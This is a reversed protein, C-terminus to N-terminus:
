YVKSMFAKTTESESGADAAFDEFDGQKKVKTQNKLQALQFQHFSKNAKKNPYILVNDALWGSSTWQVQIDCGTLPKQTLIRTRNQATTPMGLAELYRICYEEQIAKLFQPTLAEQPKVNTGALKQGGKLPISICFDEDYRANTTTGAGRM